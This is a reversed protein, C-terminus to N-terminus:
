PKKSYYLPAEGRSTCSNTPVRCKSNSVSPKTPRDDRAYTRLCLEPCVVLATQIRANEVEANQKPGMFPSRLGFGGDYMEAGHEADVVVGATVAERGDVTLDEGCQKVTSSQEKEFM